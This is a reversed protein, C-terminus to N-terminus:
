LSTVCAHPTHSLTWLVIRGCFTDIAITIVYRPQQFGPAQQKVHLATYSRRAALQDACNITASEDIDQGPRRSAGHGIARVGRSIGIRAIEDHPKRGSTMIDSAQQVSTVVEVITARAEKAPKAGSEVRQVSEGVPDKIEKATRAGRRALTRVEGAGVAFGRGQEGARAAALAASLALINRRRTDHGAKADCVNQQM